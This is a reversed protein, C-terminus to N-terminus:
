VNHDNKKKCKKADTVELIIVMLKPINNGAQRRSSSGDAM